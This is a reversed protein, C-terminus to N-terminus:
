QAVIKRKQDTGICRVYFLENCKIIGKILEKFLKEGLLFFM